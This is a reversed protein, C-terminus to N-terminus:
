RCLRGKLRFSVLSVWGLAPIGDAVANLHLALPSPRNAEKIGMVKEILESLPKLIGPLSAADPRKSVSATSILSGVAVFAQSVVDSQTRSINSVLAYDCGRRGPV